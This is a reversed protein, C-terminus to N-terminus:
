AKRDIIADESILVPIGNYIPYRYLIEDKIGNSLYFNKEKYIKNGTIPCKLNDYLDMVEPNLKGPKRAVLYITGFIAPFKQSFYSYLIKFYKRIMNSSQIKKTSTPITIKKLEIIEFGANIFLKTLKRVSFSKEITGKFYDRIESLRRYPNYAYPELTFIYGGEKLINFMESLADDINALHHLMEYAVVKDFINNNFALKHADMAFYEMEENRFEKSRIKSFSLAIENIDSPVMKYGMHFLIESEGSTNSGVDLIYGNTKYNDLFSKVIDIKAKYGFDNEYKNITNTTLYKDKQSLIHKREFNREQEASIKM